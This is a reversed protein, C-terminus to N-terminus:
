NKQLQNRIVINCNELFLEIKDVPIKTGAAPPHGGGLVDLNTQKCADKIAESLNVGQNVIKEHARGSVKYVEEDTRKALGFIPKSKDIGKINGFILMSSITGIISEPIKDEGFFYQISDKQQIKENDQIWSLSEVLSKRYDNQIKKSQQYIEKRDGMAIAIGLSSNHTRGCANLLNSFDKADHLESNISEKKLLYRNAILKKIIKNPELDLKISAYEIIASSIKQKEDQNLENLTKVRGESNEMLIGQTKLFILTRNADKSLGPLNFDTSYAIAENLPKLSPFNLDNVVEVLGLNCADELILANLGLFSKNEGQNQIDGIAGIIAIPSLDMNEQNLCKAFYYCLGAGSIETSGDIGYFYPNIHWNLTKEHIEGIEKIEEKNSINQPIHHDLILFSDFNKEQVLKKHLESYQGSGFDSFILFNKYKEVKESIKTIEEKELQRLVSIQFPIKERYLAKGLIAGSSLGDADLHTYINIPSDMTKIKDFFYIKAKNLDDLLKTLKEKNKDM